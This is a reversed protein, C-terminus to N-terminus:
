RVKVKLILFLVVYSAFFVSLGATSHRADMFHLYKPAADEGDDDQVDAPMMAWITKAQNVM